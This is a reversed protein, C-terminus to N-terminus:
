TRKKGPWFRWGVGRLAVEPFWVLGHGQQRKERIGDVRDEEMQETRQAFSFRRFFQKGCFEQCRNAMLEATRQGRNLTVRRRQQAVVLLKSGLLALVKESRDACGAHM